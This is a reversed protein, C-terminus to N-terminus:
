SLIEYFKSLIGFVSTEILCFDLFIDQEETHPVLPIPLLASIVFNVPYNFHLWGEAQIAKQLIIKAKTMLIMMTTMMMMMMFIMMRIHRLQLTVSPWGLSLNCKGLIHVTCVIDDDDGDDDDDEDDDKPRRLTQM